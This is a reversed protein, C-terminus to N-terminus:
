PSFTAELPQPTITARWAERAGPALLAIGPKNALEDAFDVAAPYGQWPEICLFPAGPQMWLGLHPSDPFDVRVGGAGEVGFWLRRSALRDMVIPLEEFLEDRLPLRDGEIPSPRPEHYLMVPDGTGRRIPAPEPREFRIVHDTKARGAVLPWNLGVHYGVDCPMAADGQNAVEIAMALGGGAMAFSVRLEFAFPYHPRTSAGDRLVMTVRAGEHEEVDFPQRWAFGHPPMPYERGDIRVRGGPVSAIVPFLIPAHESWFGPAGQWVRERGDADRFSTLQAGLREIVASSGDAASLTIRDGKAM